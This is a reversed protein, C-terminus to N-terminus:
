KDEEEWYISSGWVHIKCSTSHRKGSADEYEVSYTNNSKDFDLPQWSVVINKAGKKQLAQRIEDKQGDANLFTIFGVIFILIVGTVRVIPDSM